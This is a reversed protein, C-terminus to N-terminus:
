GRQVGEGVAVDDDGIRRVALLHRGREGLFPGLGRQLRGAEAIPFQPGRGGVHVGHLDVALTPLNPTTPTRSTSGCGTASRTPSPSAPASRTASWAPGCIPTTRPPWNPM